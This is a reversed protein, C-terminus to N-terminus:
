EQTEFGIKIEVVEARTGIRFPPGWLGFGSSVISHLDGKKLYGWDNEYIMSTILNAPAVQGGHTHGSLLVDVGNTNAENLEDPQHDLMIIPKDKDLNKVLEEISKRKNDTLDNRGVIYFSDQILTTEDDLMTLGAKEMEEFIIELDNGYYDHNGSTAYVGLPARIKQMTEGMNDTLYPEIYDDILDGPILVIDPRREVVIDVLRKLHKEGVIKGLHLDSVMLINLEKQAAPKDLSIDYTRIVPNWANYSGFVFVFVFFVIVAGGLVKEGKKKFLYYLLNAIPLLILSYGIILLWSGGIFAVIKSSILRDLFIMLSLVFIVAFYSKKYRFSFTERLWVWGNYGVYFCIVFYIAMFVAFVIYLM